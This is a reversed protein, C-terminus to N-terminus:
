ENRLSMSLSPPSIELSGKDEGEQEENINATVCQASEDRQGEEVLPTLPPAVRELLARAATHAEGVKHTRHRL